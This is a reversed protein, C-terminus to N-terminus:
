ALCNSSSSSVYPFQRIFLDHPINEGGGMQLMFFPVGAAVCQDRVARAWDPDTFRANSGQEGGCIIWIRNGYALLDDPLTVPAVMPAVSIFLTWGRKALERVLPWREDLEQQREATFGLWFRARWSTRRDADPALFYQAMVEPRKTLLLGIHKSWGIASVVQAIHAVPREAHFLDAM